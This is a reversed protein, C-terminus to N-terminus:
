KRGLVLDLAWCGRAHGDRRRLHGLLDPNDCGAEELADALVPLDQYRQGEYIGQAVKVVAADGWLLWSSEVLVPRFPNGVLERLLAAQEAEEAEFAMQWAGRPGSGPDDPSSWLYFSAAMRAAENSAGWGAEIANAQTCRAAAQAARRIGVIEDCIGWPSGKNVAQARMQAERLDARSTRGDAYEEAVTVARQSREDSLLHWMRRCCACGFLRRKRESIKGVVFRKMATLNTGELWEQETM